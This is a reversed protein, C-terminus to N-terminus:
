GSAAPAARGGSTAMAPTVQSDEYWYWANGLVEPPRQPAGPPEWWPGSCGPRDATYHVHHIVPGGPTGDSYWSEWPQEDSRAAPPLAYVVPGDAALFHPVVVWRYGEYRRVAEEDLSAILVDVGVGIVAFAADARAAHMQDRLGRGHRAFRPRLDGADGQDVVRWRWQACETDPAAVWCHRRPAGDIATWREWPTWGVEEEPPVAHVVPAFGEGLAASWRYRRYPHDTRGVLPAMFTDVDMGLEDVAQLVGRQRLTTAFGDEM